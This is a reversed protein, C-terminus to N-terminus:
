LNSGHQSLLIEPTIDDEESLRFQETADNRFSLNDTSRMRHEMSLLFKMTPYVREPLHSTRHLHEIGSDDFGLLSLISQLEDWSKSIEYIDMQNWEYTQLLLFELPAPNHLVLHMCWQSYHRYYFTNEDRALHCDDYGHVLFESGHRKVYERMLMCRIRFIVSMALRINCYVKRMNMDSMIDVPDQWKLKEFLSGVRLTYYIVTFNGMISSSVEIFTAMASEPMSEIPTDKIAEAFSKMYNLAKRYRDYQSRYHIQIDSHTM